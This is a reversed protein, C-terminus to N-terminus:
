MQTGNWGKHELIAITTNVLYYMILFDMHFSLLATRLSICKINTM